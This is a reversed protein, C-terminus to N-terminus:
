LHPRTRFKLYLSSRRQVMELAARRCRWLPILRNAPNPQLLCLKHSILRRPSTFWRHKPLHLRPPYNPAPQYVPVAVVRREVCGVTGALVAASIVTM